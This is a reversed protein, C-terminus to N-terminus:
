TTMRVEYNTAGMVNEVSIVVDVVTTGDATIRATQSVITVTQPTQLGTADSGPGTIEIEGDPSFDPDYDSGDELFEEPDDPILDETTAPRIGLVDSPVFFRPDVVVEPTKIIQNDRIQKAM